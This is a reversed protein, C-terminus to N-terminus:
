WFTLGFHRFVSQFPDYSLCRWILSMFHWKVFYPAKWLREQSLIYVKNPLAHLLASLLWLTLFNKIWSFKPDFCTYSNESFSRMLFMLVSLTINFSKIEEKLNIRYLEGTMQNEPLSAVQLSSILVDNLPHIQDSQKCTAYPILFAISKFSM